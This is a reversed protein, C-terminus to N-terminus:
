LNKTRRSDKKLMLPINRLKWEDWLLLCLGIFEGGFLLPHNANSLYESIDHYAADPFHWGTFPWLLASTYTIKQSTPLGVQDAWGDLLLHSAVGLALAAFLRSRKFISIVTLLLLFLATHGLTRTGSILKPAYASLENAYKGTLSLGYYLPKDILDPLLTGVLVIRRSLGRTFPSIIKSGIGLHGFLLM